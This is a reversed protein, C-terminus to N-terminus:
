AEEPTWKAFYGKEKNEVTEGDAGISSTMKQYEHEFRYYARKWTRNPEGPKLLVPTSKGDVPHEIYITFDNGKNWQHLPTLDLIGIEYGDDNFQSAFKGEAMKYKPASQKAKKTEVEKEESM